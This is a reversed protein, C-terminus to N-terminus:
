SKREARRPVPAMWMDYCIPIAISAGRVRFVRKHIEGPRFWRREQVSPLFAKREVRVRGNDIVAAANYTHDGGYKQSASLEAFGMVVAPGHRGLEALRPDDNALAIDAVDPFYYGGLHLEPFVVIDAHPGLEALRRHAHALNADIDGLKSATQVVAVRISNSVM